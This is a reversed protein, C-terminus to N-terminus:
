SVGAARLAKAPEAAPARWHEHWAQFMLLHWLLEPRDRQGSLHQQWLSRIAAPELYGEAAIRRQDLLTEAWDRLPGRLWAGIPVGFGRKPRAFMPRPVYRELVARLVRKAGTSDARMALPLSWAFEVLRHDLLPCRVELSAAMSARDVKLLCDDPLYGAFDLYMMTQLPERLQPWSARDDLLHPVARAGRVLRGPDEVRAREGVFVDLADAAGIGASRRAVKSLWKPGDVNRLATASLAEAAKRAGGPWPRLRRWLDLSRRYRQYGAFLEDGGDGSLAVTVSKRALRCVLATPIQSPDAFPEDYIQPLEPVLALSDEPGVYLEAHETGLHEAIERAFPAEDHKPEFFGISFTRVPKASAAQMMAVVASSDVGGSLLAGLPVDAIMRNRVAEGLLTDLADVAQDFGGSFPIREGAEAAAGASWYTVPEGRDGGADVSLMTGPPLKRIQRYISYPGPIWGHRVLLGLADRDIEADFAPHRHLAKLESTFVFAAGCWGYYLPKKGVRDRALTLRRAERDWLALAFMGHLRPLAQEIGWEAIAALLVETDSHGRFRHGRQELTRRVERFNYIEGNYTIVLRGCASAMPQHGANSLDIISLRRHGFALGAEPDVWRGGDDPGRHRLAGSMADVIAGLRGEAMDPKALLFGCIGCM